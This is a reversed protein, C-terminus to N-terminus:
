QINLKEILVNNAQELANKEAIYKQYNAVRNNMDENFKREVFQAMTEPNPKLITEGQEDIGVAIKDQYGGYSYALSAYFLEVQEEPIQRSFTQMFKTIKAYM